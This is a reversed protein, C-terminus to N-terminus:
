MHICMGVGRCPPHIIYIADGYLLVVVCKIVLKENGMCKAAESSSKLPCSLAAQGTMVASGRFATFIRVAAPHVKRSAQFHADSGRLGAVRLSLQFAIIIIM